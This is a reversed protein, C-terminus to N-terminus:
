DNTKDEILEVAIALELLRNKLYNPQIGIIRYMGERFNIPDGFSDIDHPLKIRIGVANTPDFRDENLDHLDLQESNILVVSTGVSMTGYTGDKVDRETVKELEASFVTEIISFNQNIPDNFTPDIPEGTFPSIELNGANSKDREVLTFANPIEFEKSAFTVQKFVERLFSDNLIQAM